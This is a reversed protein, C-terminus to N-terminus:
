IFNLEKDVQRLIRCCGRAQFQFSFSTKIGVDLFIKLGENFVPKWQGIGQVAQVPAHPVIM